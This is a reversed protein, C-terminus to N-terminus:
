MRDEIEVAENESVSYEEMVDRVKEAQDSKMEQNKMIKLIDEELTEENGITGNNTM